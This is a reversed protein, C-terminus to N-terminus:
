HKIKDIAARLLAMLDEVTELAMDHEEALMVLEVSDIGDVPSWKWKGADIVPIALAAYDSPKLRGLRLAEEIRSLAHEYEKRASFADAIRKWFNLMQPSPWIMVL